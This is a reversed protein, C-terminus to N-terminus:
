IKVFIPHKRSFSALNECTKQFNNLFTTLKINFAYLRPINGSFAKKRGFSFTEQFFFSFCESINLLLLIAASRLQFYFKRLFANEGFNALPFYGQPLRADQKTVSSITIPQTAVLLKSFATFKSCQGNKNWEQQNLLQTTM